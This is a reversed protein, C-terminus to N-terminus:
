LCQCVRPRLWARMCYNMDALAFVCRCTFALCAAEGGLPWSAICGVAKVLKCVPVLVDLQVGVMRVPGADDADDADDDDSESASLSV